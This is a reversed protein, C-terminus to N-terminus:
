DWKLLNRRIMPESHSIASRRLRQEQIRSLSAGMLQVTLMSTNVLKEAIKTKAEDKIFNVPDSFVKNAKDRYEDAKEVLDMGYSTSPAITKTVDVMVQAGLKVGEAGERHAIKM